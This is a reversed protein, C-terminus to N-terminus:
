TRLVVKGMLGSRLWWGTWKCLGLLSLPLFLGRDGGDKVGFAVKGSGLNFAWFCGQVVSGSFVASGLLFWGVM